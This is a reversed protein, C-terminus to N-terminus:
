TMVKLSIIIDLVQICLITSGSLSWKSSKESYGNTEQLVALSNLATAKLRPNSAKEALSVAESYLPELEYYSAGNEEM